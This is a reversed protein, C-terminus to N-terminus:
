SAWNLGSSGIKPVRPRTLPQRRWGGRRGDTATAPDDVDPDHQDPYGVDDTCVIFDLDVIVLEFDDLDAVAVDPSRPFGGM